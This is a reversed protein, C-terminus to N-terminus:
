GYIWGRLADRVQRNDAGDQAILKHKDTLMGVWM